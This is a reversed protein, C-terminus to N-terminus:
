HPGARRPLTFFFSAGQDVAAQAWIRGGHRHVIRQATALGVGTGAYEHLSHLRQFPAFLNSAFRMDFGAGNDRVCYARAGAVETAFLEIRPHAAKGTFKWANGILNDLLVEILRSDFDAHLGDEIAVEVTREPDGPVLQAVVGRAIASLDGPRVKLETRSMRALSLLADILSAMKRSSALIEQLCDAGEEDLKDQYSDFLMQAFGNMGRLPARLDHAVSYSFAELERNAVVLANGIEKRQTVDRIASMVLVGHETKLPSLSIEVPFETGDKRLGSLELESGMARAKPDTFYGARHGPHNGRFRAPVLTEVPMGVLETRDHGFLREAQGNVLVIKGAGDVIVVADPAGELLGRFKAEAARSERLLERRQTVDRIATMVLMGQETRLPSLSIEVPFESGDQRLGYLELESGMARAKPSSFYGARHRPHHQRYRDPILIEIPKGVLETRDYGFLAETQGNVLSIAGGEDVIVVADPAGELLDRFRAESARAERLLAKSQTVDRIASMVLVGDDTQLPSLSIEVPFETGDKRLGHLELNSGMGRVKPDGFYGMRHHPHHGRYREPILTEVPQGVLEIREYRFLTETQGNVLVITGRADVLVVADPAGELLGRFRAEAARAERLSSRESVDTVDVFRAPRGAFTTAHSWAEVDIVTGDRRRARGATVMNANGMAALRAAVTGPAEPDRLDEIRLNMLEERSYGYLRLAADNVALIQQSESDFILKALPSLDFFRQHSHETERLAGEAHEAAARAVHEAVYLRSNAIALAAHDSLLQALALDDDRYGVSATGHRILVLVGISQGRVRLAVILISHMGIARAYEYYHLTTRPPRLQDLDVMQQLYAEGTALVARPVPHEELALPVLLTARSLALAAPDNDALAVPDLRTGDESVLLISCSDGIVTAVRSAITDLLRQLDM